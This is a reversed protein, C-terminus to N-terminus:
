ASAATPWRASAPAWARAGAKTAPRKPYLLQAVHRRLLLPQQRDRQGAPRLGAPRRLGPGVHRRSLREQRRPRHPHGRRRHGPRARPARRPLPQQRRLRHPHRRRGLGLRPGRGPGRLHQRRRPERADFRGPDRRGPHGAQQRPLHQQRGSQHRGAGAPRAGVTGEYYTNDGGLDIVVAVDRM